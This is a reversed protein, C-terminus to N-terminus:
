GPRRCGPPVPRRSGAGRDRCGGGTDGGAGRQRGPPRCCHLCIGKVSGLARLDRAGWRECSSERVLVALLVSLGWCAWRHTGLVRRGEGGWGPTIVSRIFPGWSRRPARRGSWPPRWCPWATSCSSWRRRAARMWAPHAWGRRPPVHPPHPLQLRPKSNELGRQLQLDGASALRGRHWRGGPCGPVAGAGGPYKGGGCGTGAEGGAGTAAPHLRRLSFGPCPPCLSGPPPAPPCVPPVCPSPFAVCRQGWPM